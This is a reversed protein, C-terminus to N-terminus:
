RELFQKAPAFVLANKVFGDNYELAMAFETAIISGILITKGSGMALALIYSPYQLTLSERVAELRNRKVFEDDTKIDEFLKGLGGNSLLKILDEQSINIGLAKLLKIPDDYLRKYLEFIHPTERCTKFVM